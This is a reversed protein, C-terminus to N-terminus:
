LDKCVVVSKADVEKTNKFYDEISAKYKEFLDDDIATWGGVPTGEPFRTLM